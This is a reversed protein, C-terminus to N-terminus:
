RGERRVEERSGRLLLGGTGGGERWKGRAKGRHGQGKGTRAIRVCRATFLVVRTKL